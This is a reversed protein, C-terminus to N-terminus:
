QRDYHTTEAVLRVQEGEEIDLGVQVPESANEALRRVERLVEVPDVSLVAGSGDEGDVPRAAVVGDVIGTLPVVLM